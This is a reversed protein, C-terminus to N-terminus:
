NNTVVIWGTSWDNNNLEVDPRVCFGVTYTGAGPVFSNAAGFSNTVAEAEVTTYDSVSNFPTVPDAGTQTCLSADFSGPTTAGIAATGAGTLRQSGNVTVLVTPGAFQWESSAAISGISGAWRLTQVVGSDGPKGTAGPMGQPGAPLQGNKFDKAMLSHDKVKASNIANKTIQKPGVSNKPLQTAALATAGGLVLFVALSSMVNAYTFRKRIQKV